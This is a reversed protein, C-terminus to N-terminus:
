IENVLREFIQTYPGKLIIFLIANDNSKVLTEEESLNVIENLGVLAIKRLRDGKFYAGLYNLM